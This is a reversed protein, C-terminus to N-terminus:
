VRHVEETTRQFPDSAPELQVKWGDFHRLLEEDNPGDGYARIPGPWDLYRLLWMVAAPKSAQWSRLYVGDGYREVRVGPLPPLSAGPPLVLQLPLGDHSIVRADPLQGCLRAAEQQGFGRRLLVRGSGDAVLAGSLCVLFDATLDYQALQHLTDELIRATCVVRRPHSAFADLCRRTRADDDKHFLTGDWDCVCLAEADPRVAAALLRRLVRDDFLTGVEAAMASLPAYCELLREVAVVAEAQGDVFDVYPRGSLYDAAANCRRSVVNPLGACLTEFISRGFTEAAAMSLHLHADDLIGCLHQHAVFGTFTVAEALGLEGVMRQVREMYAQDQVPGVVRLTAGPHRLRLAHFLRLLVLTNKQPKISGVSAFRPPGDLVRARHPFREVDVGRPVVKVRQPEVGYRELLLRKELYSPTIVAAARRLAAQELRTYEGPVREGAAEYSPTLLMPLCLVRCPLDDTRLGFQMSVHVFLLQDYHRAVERVRAAVFPANLIRRQFRCPHRHPYSHRYRAPSAGPLPAVEFQMIDMSDGLAQRLSWVLRAGGDRQDDRPACKETVLLYRM